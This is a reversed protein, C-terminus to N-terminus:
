GNGMDENWYKLFLNPSVLVQVTHTFNQSNKNLFSNAGLFLTRSTIEEACLEASKCETVKVGIFHPEM